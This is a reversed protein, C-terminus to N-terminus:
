DNIMDYYVSDPEILGHETMSIKEAWERCYGDKEYQRITQNVRHFKILALSALLIFFSITLVMPKNM